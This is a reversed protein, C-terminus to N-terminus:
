SNYLGAPKCEPNFDPWELTRIIHPVFRVLYEEIKEGHKALSACFFLLFTKALVLETEKKDENMNLVVKVLRHPDYVLLSKQMRELFIPFTVNVPFRTCLEGSLKRIDDFQLPSLAMDLLVLFLDKSGTDLKTTDITNVEQVLSILASPAQALDETESYFAEDALSRLTLLPGLLTYLLQAVESNNGQQYVM